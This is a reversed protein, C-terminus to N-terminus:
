YVADKWGRLRISSESLSLALYASAMDPEETASSNVISSLNKIANDLATNTVLIRELVYERIKSNSLKQELAELVCRQVTLKDIPKDALTNHYFHLNRNQQNSHHKILSLYWVKSKSLHFRRNCDEMIIGIEVPRRANKLITESREMILPWPADYFVSEPTDYHTNDTRVLKGDAILENIYFQAHGISSSRILPTIDHVTRAGPERNFLEIISQKQGKLSFSENLSATDTNSKGSFYIKEGIGYERIIHRVTFYDLDFHCNEYIDIKLNASKIGSKELRYLEDKTISLVSEIKQDDINLHNVHRYTGHASLYVFGNDVAGATGHDQRALLFPRKCFSHKNAYEHIERLSAGEPFNLAAQAFAEPKSLKVPYFGDSCERINNESILKELANDAQQDGYGFNTTIQSTLLARTFPAPVYAALDAIFHSSIPPNILADIEGKKAQCILEVFKVFGSKTGFRRSLSPYTSDINHKLNEKINELINSPTISLSSLFNVSIKQQLQRIRERSVKPSITEGIEELTKASQGDIGFRSKLIYRERERTNILFMTLDHNIIESLETVTFNLYGSYSLLNSGTLSSKIEDDTKDIYNNLERYIKDRLKIAIDEYTTGLATKRLFSRSCNHIIHSANIHSFPINIERSLRQVFKKEAEDLKGFNICLDALKEKEPWNKSQMAIPKQAKEAHHTSLLHEKLNSFLSTKKTGFYSLKSIEQESINVIQTCTIQDGFNRLLAQKLAKFESPLSIEQFKIGAYTDTRSTPTTEEYRFTEEKITDLEQNLENKNEIPSSKSTLLQSLKENM